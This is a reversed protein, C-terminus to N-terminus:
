NNLPLQLEGEYIYENEYDLYNGDVGLKMMESYYGLQFLTEEEQQFSLRYDPGAFDMTGTYATEAGNLEAILKKIFEKDKITSVLEGNQFGYVKISTVADSFPIDDKSVEKPQVSQTQCANLVFVGLLIVAFLRVKLM